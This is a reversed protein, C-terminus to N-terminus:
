ADRKKGARFMDVVLLVAGAFIAMDAVNFAPWHRGQWHFDLFDVVYGLTVRDYLNGLAGGLILGLACAELKKGAPLLAIWGILLLSVVTAIGTFFWKQWGGAESLFSFAAGTNHLLTLNFFGTIEVPQAYNLQATALAKTWLDLAIVLVALAYWPVAQKLGQLNPM